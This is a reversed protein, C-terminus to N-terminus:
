KLVIVKGKKTYIDIASEPCTRYCAQCGACGIKELDLKDLDEKKLGKPVPSWNVAAYGKQNFDQSQSILGKPCAEVCRHCDKCINKLVAVAYKTEVQLDENSTSDYCRPCKTFFDEPLNIDKLLEKKYSIMEKTAYPTECTPCKVLEFEKGWIKRKGNKDEMKIANTPCIHYCMGCGICDETAKEVHKETGRSALTIASKGVLQDCARTCIGCEICNELSEDAKKKFDKNKKVGLQFAVHKLHESNPSKALILEMNMKRAKQVRPTNTSVTIEESDKVVYNCSTELKTKGNREVEVLCLRCAAYPELSEHNCLRPIIRNVINRNKTLATYTEDVVELLTMGEEAIVEHEDIKLKAM